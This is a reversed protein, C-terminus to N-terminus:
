TNRSIHRTGIRTGYWGAKQVYPAVMRLFVRTVTIATFLSVVVGVALTLGFGKVLSTSFWFLILAGLLTTVHSDRISPWARKFADEIASQLPKGARLEEKLREFQLVNTDVAMGISLVFGAIGSLSLTVPILKFLALVIACYVLLALVALVGALRYTIIMFLAIMGLGVLAAKLSAAVSAEGLTAGITQQSVLHIPVPLAGANLRQALLKAEKITFNGSIIAQGDTIASQVRPISIPIGDLFIAVLKGMSRTTIDAFLQKGESNFDLSVQPASTNQDFQVSSHVLHKGSLGTAKWPNPPPLYDTETKEKILIRAVNYAKVPRDEVRRIIHFGFQTEVPESIAGNQLGFAADEFPKVMAGKAFFGLDGSSEKAGPEVSNDRALKEFNEENAQAKLEDIKKRADDKSIDSECGEIGRWCILIHQAHIEVGRDEQAFVRVINSGEETLIPDLSVKGVGNKDAWEWLTGYASDRTIFGIAGGLTKSTEDDSYRKALDMFDVEPKTKLESILNDLRGRANKNYQEMDKREDPTLARTPEPTGEEKFELVPTEGIQRIADKVDKIGALEVVVRWSNGARATQVLPEAVGFANVRREIVDRVGSMADDREGSEIKSVDAEYVLHAGGQLDLGLRFPRAPYNGIRVTKDLWAGIKPVKELPTKEIQKNVADAGVDWFHPFDLFGTLLALVIVLFFAWRVKGRPSPNVLSKWLRKRM